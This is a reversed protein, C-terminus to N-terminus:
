DADKMIKYYENCCEVDPVDVLPEPATSSFSQGSPGRYHEHSGIGSKQLYEKPDWPTTRQKVWTPPIFESRTNTQNMGEVWLMLQSENECLQDFRTLQSRSPEWDTTESQSPNGPNLVPAAPPHM